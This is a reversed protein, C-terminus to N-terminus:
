HHHHSCSGGCSECDHSCGQERPTVENIITEIVSQILSNLANQANEYRIFDENNVIQEYLENIRADVSKILNEDKTECKSQEDLIQQQVNYEMIAQILEASSEYAAKAADFEAAVAEGKIRQGLIKAMELIEM